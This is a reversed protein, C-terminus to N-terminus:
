QGFATFSVGRPLDRFLLREVTELTLVTNIELVYNKHGRTHDRAMHELFDSNWFPSRRARADTVVDHLYGALERRLWSRYHLYKHLGLIGAGSGFRRFLPDLPLLWHPLGENSVYDLKFTVRAFFRRLLAGLGSNQGGLGMDTPINSLAASNDKVVRLASRPSTRLSDPCQYALAVIENDLYPTRFITQSRGAALSGFLNWPIERFAAFTIPHTNGRTGSRAPSNLSRSFEPDFLSPSLGISKFTSVGRLVESGYNGTLRVPALQRAQKNLYIEHAGTIGFCGDTVFVTRDAHAAFDSFFDGSIPLLRHELRCTEAVRAALRDDL